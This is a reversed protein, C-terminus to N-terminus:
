LFVYVLILLLVCMCMRKTNEVFSCRPGLGVPPQQLLGAAPLSATSPRTTVTSSWPTWQSQRSCSLSCSRWPKSLTTEACIYWWRRLRLLFCFGPCKGSGQIVASPQPCCLGLGVGRWTTSEGQYSPKRSVTLGPTLISVWRTCM